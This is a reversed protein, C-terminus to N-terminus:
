NAAREPLEVTVTHNVALEESPQPFCLIVRTGEGTETEIKLTGGIRAAREQLIKLGLHEGPGGRLVQEQFGVGDDEILVMYDDGKHGARMLVRVTNAESHKRINALAEQVIRLVQIEVEAPLKAGDWELQLYASIGSNRRFREVAQQSSANDGTHDSGTIGRRAFIDEIKGVAMVRRGAARERRVRDVIVAWHSATSVSTGGFKM